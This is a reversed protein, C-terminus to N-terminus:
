EDLENLINILIHFNDKDNIYKKFHSTPVKGKGKYTDAAWRM